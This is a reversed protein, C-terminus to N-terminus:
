PLKDIQEVAPLKEASVISSQVNTAHKIQDNMAYCTKRIEDAYVKADAGDEILDCALVITQIGNRVYHNVDSELNQQRRQQLITIPSVIFLCAMALIFLFWRVYILYASNYLAHGLILQPVVLFLLLVGVTISGSLSAIILRLRSYPSKRVTQVRRTWVSIPM